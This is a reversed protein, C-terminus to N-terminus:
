ATLPLNLGLVFFARGGAHEAWTGMADDANMRTKNMLQVCDASGYHAIRVTALRPAMPVQASCSFAGGKRAVSKM